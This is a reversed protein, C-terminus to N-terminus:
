EFVINKLFVKEFEEINDAKYFSVIYTKYYKGDYVEYLYTHNKFHENENNDYYRDITIYEWTIGNITKQEWTINKNSSNNKIKLIDKEIASETQMIDVTVNLYFALNSIDYKDKKEDYYLKYTTTSSAYNRAFSNSYKYKIGDRSDEKDLKIKIGNIIYEKSNNTNSNNNNKIGCGTITFISIIILVIIFIKKKM